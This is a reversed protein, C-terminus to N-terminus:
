VGKCKENCLTKIPLALLLEQRVLETLDITNDAEIPAVFDAGKLEVEGGRHVFPQRVFEESFDVKLPTQYAKLCRSCELEAKTSIEGDVMVTEGNNVLHLNVQIPETLKLGDASFDAPENQELDAENGVERLLETM